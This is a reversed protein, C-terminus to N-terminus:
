SLESRVPSIRYQIGARALDALYPNEARGDTIVIDIQSLSVSKHFSVLGFKTHDALLFVEDSVEASKRKVESELHFPDTVGHEVDVSNASIFCKDAHITDLFGAVHPGVYSLTSPALLGGSSYIRIGEVSALEVQVNLGTTIVTLDSKSTLYRVVALCTTSADLIICDGDNVLDAAFAAIDNKASTESQLRARYDPETTLPHKAQVGGYSKELLGNEELKVLDRHITMGSVGFIRSLETIKVNGREQVLRLIQTRREAPFM